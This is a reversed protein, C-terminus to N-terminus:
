PPAIEGGSKFSSSQLEQLKKLQTKCDAIADALLKQGEPNKSLSDGRLTRYQVLYELADVYNSREYEGKGKRYVEDPTDALLAGAFVSIALIITLKM